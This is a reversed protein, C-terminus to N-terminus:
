KLLWTREGIQMEHANGLGWDDPNHYPVGERFDFFKGQHSQAGHGWSEVHDLHYRDGLVRTRIGFTHLHMIGHDDCGVRRDRLTEDYGRAQHWLDRHALLFNGSYGMLSSSALGSSVHRAPDLLLPATVQEGNWSITVANGGYVTSRDRVLPLHKILNRGLLIDANVVAIWPTTARRIGVNKAFYEMVPINPNTSVEQHKKPSVVYVRLRPFREILWPADSPADLVPNWEVYIGQGGTANLNWELTVALRRRFDGGYNDNRGVVVITIEPWSYLKTYISAVVDQWTNQIAWKARARQARLPVRAALRRVKDLLRQELTLLVSKLRMEVVENIVIVM